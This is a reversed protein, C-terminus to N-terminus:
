SKTFRSKLAYKISTNTTLYLSEMYQTCHGIQIDQNKKKKIYLLIPLM